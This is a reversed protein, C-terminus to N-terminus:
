WYEKTVYGLYKDYEGPSLEVTALSVHKGQGRTAKLKERKVQQEVSAARLGPRDTAPDVEGSVDLEIGPRDTLAKALTQLKGLAKPTLESSGPDFALYSLEESSGGFASALLSFPSTIAKTILHTVATWIVSGISFKPDSLSGSVPIDLDIVGDADKLLSVALRVPLNTATKTDVHDGFTLQDIYLHNDATLQGKDLHYSLDVHLKGKQIPYGTYKTSYTAFQTLGIEKANVKMDLSPPKALPNVNGNIAVSGGTNLDAQLQVPAPEAAQTGLAGVQGQINILKASFNPKIFNDTYDIRGKDLTIGGFHMRVTSPAASAAQASPTPAASSKEVRTLSTSPANKSTLFNSLNLRGQPDLFIRAFFQSLAIQGIDVDTGDAGYRAKIGSLHLRRWGAFLDSSQKDLMRVSGLGASGDYAVKWGDGAKALSADGSVYLLASSISANLRSAFYPQFTALDVRRLHLHLRLALPALTLQGNLAVSGKGQVTSSVDFPWPKHTNESINQVKAQLDSLDLSVPKANTQDLLKVSSRALTFSGVSYHWGPSKAAATKAAQHGPIGSAPASKVLTALDITGDRARQVRAELGDLAIESLVADRTTLDIQKIRAQAQSLQLLPQSGKAGDLQLGTLTIQSTGLKLAAQPASWDASFKADAGLTGQAIRGALMPEVYPQFMPLSLKEVAVGAALQHKVYNLTGQGAISGRASGDQTLNVSLHYRAPRDEVTSLDDLALNLGDLDIRTPSSTNRDIWHITGGTLSFQQLAVDLPTSAAQSKANSGAPAASAADTAKSKGASAASESGSKADAKPMLRSLNIAGDAERSLYLRPRDIRIDTLHFISRLPELTSAAVHIDDVQFLPKDSKDTISLDDLDATGSVIIRPTSDVISFRISLNTSLRGSALKVPLSAPAYTALEPLNLQNLKLTVDAERSTKFPKTSGFVLLPRGDIRAQLLPKVFIDTKSPLNAVFPIGLNLHDIRHQKGLLRDDFDVSGDDLHINSVSFRLPSGSSPKGPKSYREILDSFNFQQAASRVIHVHPADLWVEDIIPKLRFLSIWSPRIVLTKFGLLEPGDQRGAVALRDIEVRLTYPNFSIEGVSVPRSLSQSMIPIGYHRVLLPVLLFGLAGWIVVVLGPWLIWRRVRRKRLLGSVSQKISSPSYRRASSM